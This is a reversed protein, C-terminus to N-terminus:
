AVPVGGHRPGRDAPGHHERVPDRGRRARWQVGPEHHHAHADRPHPRVDGRGREVRGPERWLGGAGEAHQRREPRAGRYLRKGRPDAGGAEREDGDGHAPGNNRCRASRRNPCPGPFPGRTGTPVSLKWCFVAAPPPACPAPTPAPAPAPAPSLTVSTRLLGAVSRGSKKQTRQPHAAPASRTRRAAGATPAASPPGFRSRCATMASSDRKYGTIRWSDRCCAPTPPPRRTQVRNDAMFRSLLGAGHGQTAIRPAPRRAGPPRGAPSCGHREPRPLNRLPGMGRGTGQGHGGGVPAGQGQGGV